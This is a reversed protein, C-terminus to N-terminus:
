LASGDINVWASGNWLIMKKLTTDYYQYGESSSTLTPRATDAGRGFKLADFDKRTSPDDQMRFRLFGTGGVSINNIYTANVVNNQIDCNYRNDVLTNNAVLLGDVHRIYLGYGDLCGKIYNDIVSINNRNFPSTSFYIGSKQNNILVNGKIVVNDSGYDLNIGAVGTNTIKNKSVKINESQNITVGVRAIDYFACNDVEVNEICGIELGQIAVGSSESNTFSCNIIKINRCYTLGLSHDHNDIYYPEIDVCMRGVGNTGFECENILVSEAHVVSLAQRYNNNASCRIISINSSGQNKVVVGGEVEVIGGIDFGDGCTYDATCNICSCNKAGKFYFGGSYETTTITEQKWGVINLNKIASNSGIFNVAYDFRNYWKFKIIAGNGDINQFDTVNFTNRDSYEVYYVGSSISVNKFKFLQYFANYNNTGSVFQKTEGLVCDAVCGFWDSHAREATFTGQIVINPLIVEKNAVIQTNNGETTGNKIKGGRFILVCNSPITLTGGNLDIESSIIYSANETAFQSQIDKSNDIVIGGLNAVVEDIADQVNTASFGSKSNDYSVADASSAGGGGGQKIANEIITQAQEFSVVSGNIQLNETRSSLISVASRTARDHLTITDTAFHAVLNGANGEFIAGEVVECRYAGGNFDLKNM